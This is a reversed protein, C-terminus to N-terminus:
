QPYVPNYPPKSAEDYSPPPVQPPYLAAGTHPAVGPASSPFHAPVSGQYQTQGHVPYQVPGPQPYSVGYTAQVNGTSHSNVGTTTTQVGQGYRIVTRQMNRNQFPGCACCFCLCFSLIVGGIILCGIVIGAIAGGSICSADEDICTGHCCKDYLYLGVCDGDHECAISWSLLSCLVLILTFINERTPVRKMEVSIPWVAVAFLVLTGQLPVLFRFFCVSQLTHCSVSSKLSKVQVEITPLVLSMVDNIQIIAVNQALIEVFFRLM